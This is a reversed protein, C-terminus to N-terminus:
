EEKKKKKFGQIEETMEEIQKHDVGETRTQAKTEKKKEASKLMEEVFKDTEETM